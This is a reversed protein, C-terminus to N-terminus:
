RTEGLSLKVVTDITNRSGAPIGIETGEGTQRVEIRGGTLCSHSVIKRDLYPLMIKERTTDLIHVYVTNDRFTAAGWDGPPFPGGRTAYISEGYKRLWDGIEKLREAQRPEIRGDPMPGVNLLLNGDGGACMVLIRICERLSKMEDDPKWAWQRCITICSEWPRGTQFFGVHQEPTDFDGELGCRNNIIIHPQLSRITRFLEISDWDNAWEPPYAPEGGGGEMPHIQLSDFWLIDIDGYNSCLESVQGHMYGIYRAHNETRYDSHRWDVPSYYFGIRVGANHCADALEKSVDRRFPSNTITYDTLKSDFMSFGDHHKATFVLYKM